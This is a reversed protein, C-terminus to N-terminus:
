PNVVVRDGLFKCIKQKIPVLEQYRKMIELCRAEDNRNEPKQLAALIHKQEECIITYKFDAMLHPVLEFLRQEDTLITQSSTHIKSLQYRDTGLEYAMASIAPDLHNLFYKESDFDEEGLHELLENLMRVHLPNHFVLGDDKLEDYIFQGVIVAKKTKDGTDDVEYYMVKNGYRVIMKMLLLEKQYFLTNEMGQQPIYSAPASQTAMLEPPIDLPVASPPPPAVDATPVDSPSVDAPPVDAPDPVAASQTAMPASSAATAGQVPAHVAEPANGQEEFRRKNRAEIDARILKAAANVLLQENIQMAQSCERIYVSRVIADPIVSISRVINNILEARKIPDSGADKLLLDTKFRIFDKQHQEIYQQCETSSHKRAFSDPDDGDPLLLVKVNMGERLLMDIGRLSAHIGAEDGDYLITINNTFRHIMRIQGQTLSTGSSAVVNEIGSQHMSIVDTYGEVLFCCDNKVIAQKAQFIGYLEDSKIYIASEPSNVYKMKVGKTAADLVRGGFAVAKGSLTFFPFIVRGWFRDQLAGNDKRYCLGTAELYKEQYGEAKAAHVMADKQSLCFGLRFRRIIDDRFGRGHFYAMGIAQGDVTNHLTNEFYTCAWENVIFMSERESQARREDDTLEREQIEINYKKALYRLAEPYTMQEHEMIFHVSDGGKGCGFCHCTNRSPSVSFSPTRENHFPCLGKYNAGAKHLTVFDSVVDVIQAAEKIRLVTAPDIM